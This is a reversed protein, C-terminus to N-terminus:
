LIYRLGKDLNIPSFNLDRKIFNIDCIKDKNLLKISEYNVSGRFIFGYLKLPLFLLWLPFHIKIIKKSYLSAIKDIFDNMSIKEEGAVYYLKNKIKSNILKIIIDCVDDVYVPQLRSKGDGIIPIFSFKKILNTLMTIDQSNKGYILSPRLIVYNIGSNIIIDEGLKKSKGYVNTDNLGADLSSIYIIKKIKNKICADVLNKTGEVNINIFEKSNSSKIIAALHIVINVNQTAKDLSDKNLLDGEIVNLKTNGIKRKGRVLCRVKINKDIISKLLNQGVFGTSGTILIM